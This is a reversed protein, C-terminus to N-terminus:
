IEGIFTESHFIEKLIVFWGFVSFIRLPLGPDPLKLQWIEYTVYAFIISLVAFYVRIKIM